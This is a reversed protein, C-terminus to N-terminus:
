LRVTTIGCAITEETSKNDLAAGCVTDATMMAATDLGFSGGIEIYDTMGKEQCKHMLGASSHFSHTETFQRGRKLQPGIRQGSVADYRQLQSTPRPQDAHLGM